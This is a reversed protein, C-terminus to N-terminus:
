RLALAEKVAAYADVIGYGVLNNPSTTSGNCDDVLTQDNLSSADEGSLEEIDPPPYLTEYPVATDQLIQRTQEINGILQPNASWMLAVVGAVHPGAMSTGSTYEYSSNPYASLIDVGPAGIDPKIRQSGDVSVPGRSSFDALYNNEDVAGVSFVEDYIALPTSVSHCDPGDNGASVITFIGAAQLAEVAPHLSEIDCGEEAPPCGWSNNLVHAAQTPDGQTFPDGNLPFPALMFQMCDLYLAPSGWARDLNACAFWTAGPAVGVSQGVISGLTHTGHGSQDNPTTTHDWPDFWHYDHQNHHGRYSDQLEPHDLQVGSDSQGIIIGEGTIGLEDWVRDAGINTLNWQPETPASASGEAQATEDPLPRMITSPIVRDVDARTSLWLRHFLGGEVEIANVLYYPTYNIALKDLTTRLNAQSENAQDVLTQYVLLRREDYNDIHYANALDAQDKMIVFLKDGYFGPQGFGTYIILGMFWLVMGIVMMVLGIDLIDYTIIVIAGLFWALSLSVFAAQFAWSIIESHGILRFSLGDIDTMILPTATTVGIVWVLAPWNKYPSNPQGIYSVGIVLWGMAPLQIMLLLNAGNFGIASGLLLLFIGCVLGGIFSDWGFGTSNYQLEYLWFTSIVLSALLGVIFGLLLNLLIDLPSGMAGWLLWSYTLLATLGIAPWLGAFSWSLSPRLLIIGGIVVMLYLLAIVIQIITALQIQVPDFFRSAPMIIIFFAGIAWTQFIARYRGRPWLLALPTLPIALLVGQVFTATVWPTYSGNIAATVGASFQILMSLVIIGMGLFFTLILGIIDSNKTPLTSEM